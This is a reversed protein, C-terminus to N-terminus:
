EYNKINQHKWVANMFAILATFEKLADQDSIEKGYEERYIEKYKDLKDKPIM